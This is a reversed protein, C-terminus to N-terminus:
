FLGVQRMRHRCATISGPSKHGTLGILDNRAMEPHQIIPQWRPRLRYLASAERAQQALLQREMNRFANLFKIKWVLAAHGTFGMALLAFGEETMAFMRRKKGRSDKYETPFFNALFFDVTLEFDAEQDSDSPAFNRRSIEDSPQFNLRSIEDAPQFNLGGSADKLINDISQLINKHSKEFREAIVLSNTYVQNDVVRVLLTEPFLDPYLTKM